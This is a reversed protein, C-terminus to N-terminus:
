NKSAIIVDLYSLALQVSHGHPGDGGTNNITAAGNNGCSFGGGGTTNAGANANNIHGHSPMTPVTITTNGVATQAFVTSFATGPTTGVTGSTVRLGYDDVAVQKTWGVPANTQRFVMSTGSPFEATRAAWSPNAGVGNTQLVQTATGPGLRAWAGADRYLISGQVSGFVTDILASLGTWVPDLGSSVLMNNAAGIPLAAWVAAGRVILEGRVAGFTNDLSSSTLLDATGPIPSAPWAGAAKPGYIGFPTDTRVAFDGNNGVTNLPPGGAATWWSTGLQGAAAQLMYLLRAPTAAAYASTAPNWLFLVGEASSSPVAAQLWATVSQNVVPATASVSLTIVGSRALAAIVYDLGPMELKSLVGAINRWLAVFDTAPNYVM